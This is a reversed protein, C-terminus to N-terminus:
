VRSETTDLGAQRAKMLVGMNMGVILHVLEWDGNEGVYDMVVVGTCADGAGRRRVRGVGHIEPRRTEAGQEVSELAHGECLWEEVRRNVTQAIVQPWCARKWFNSASLFNLYLPEAGAPHLTGASAVGSPMCHAVRGARVLHETCHQVKASILGPVLVDCFDQLCFTPSVLPFRAHTANHPWPTADLGTPSPQTPSATSSTKYRRVLVLKGRVAGLSPISCGTYWRSPNSGIYHTNLITALHEDTAGGIGERKLSILITESPNAALFSYCTQLVPLFYKPGTLSVPFAGHVLYLDQKSADTAHVPQLRIDLFRIGNELQNMVDVVQCRVSPLARYYTHSNHTGPISIASIPLQDPLTKMWCSYTCNHNTHLSVHPVPRTPHFLIRPTISITSTLNTSAHSSRQTYSPNFDVRFRDNSENQVILRVNTSSVETSDQDLGEVFSKLTYAEYPELKVELDRYKFKQAHEGLEPSTPTILANSSSPFLYSTTKSQLSNPDQFHEVRTLYLTSPTLNRITFASTM